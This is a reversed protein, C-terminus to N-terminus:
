VYYRPLVFQHGSARDLTYIRVTVDLKMEHGDRWVQVPVSEGDQALQFALSASLRNRNYLISRESGVPYDGIRLIVDELKLSKDAGSLPAFGDVRMGLDNDPLKLYNR